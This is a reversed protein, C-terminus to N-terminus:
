KKKKSLKVKDWEAKLQSRAFDYGERTYINDKSALYEVTNFGDNKAKNLLAKAIGQKQNIPRVSITADKGYAQEGIIEADNLKLIGVPEGKADRYVFQHLSGNDVRSIGPQGKEIDKSVVKWQSAETAQEINFQMTKESPLQGKVWEDFSQGSAKAKQISSTLSDAESAGAKILGGQLSKDVPLNAKNPNPPLTPSIITANSPPTKIATMTETSQPVSQYVKEFKGTKPNRIPRGKQAPVMKVSSEVQPSAMRIAPEPLMLRSAREDAVKRIEGALKRVLEPTQKKEIMGILKRSLFTRMDPNALIKAMTETGLEAAIAGGWGGTQFGFAGSLLRRTISGSLGGFMGPLRWSKGSEIMDTIVEQAHIIKSWERNAERYASYSGQKEVQDRVADALSYGASKGIKMPDSANFPTLDNGIKRLQEMVDSPVLADGNVDTILRSKNKELVADVERLVKQSADNIAVESNLKQRLSSLSNRTTESVNFLATEEKQAQNIVDRYLDSVEQLQAPALESGGNIDYKALTTYVNDGTRELLNAEKTRQRQTLPFTQEYQKAINRRAEAIAIETKTLSADTSPLFKSAL